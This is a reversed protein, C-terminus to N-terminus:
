HGAPWNWSSPPLGNQSSTCSSAEHTVAGKSSNGCLHLATRLPAATCPAELPVTDASCPTRRRRCTRSTGPFNKACWRLLVQAAHGLLGATAHTPSPTLRSRNAWVPVALAAHASHGPAVPRGLSMMLRRWSPAHAVVMRVSPRTVVRQALDRAARQAVRACVAVASRASWLHGALPVTSPM